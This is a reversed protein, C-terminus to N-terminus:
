SCSLIPTIFATLISRGPRNQNAPVYNERVAESLVNFYNKVVSTLAPDPVSQTMPSELALSVPHSMTFLPLPIAGRRRIAPVCYVMTAGIRGM